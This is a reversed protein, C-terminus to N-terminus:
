PPGHRLSQLHAQLMADVGRARHRHANDLRHLYLRLKGQGLVHDDLYRLFFLRRPQVGSYRTTFDYQCVIYLIPMSNWPCSSLEIPSDKDPEALRFPAPFNFPSLAHPLIYQPFSVIPLVRLAVRHFVPGAEAPAHGPVQRVILILFFGKEVDHM